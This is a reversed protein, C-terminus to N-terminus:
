PKGWSGPRLNDLSGREWSQTSEAPPISSGDSLFCTHFFGEQPRDLTQPPKRDQSRNASHTNRPTTLDRGATPKRHRADRKIRVLPQRNCGHAFFQTQEGGVRISVDVHVHEVTGRPLPPRLHRPVR